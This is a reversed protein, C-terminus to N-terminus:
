TPRIELPERFRGEVNALNRQAYEAMVRWFQVREENTHCNAIAGVIAAEVIAIARVAPASAEGPRVTATLPSILIDVAMGQNHAGRVCSLWSVRSL